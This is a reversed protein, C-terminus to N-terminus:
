GDGKYIVGFGRKRKRRRAWQLKRNRLGLSRYRELIEKRRWDVISNQPLIKKDRCRNVWVKYQLMNFWTDISLKLPPCQVSIRFKLSIRSGSRDTRIISKEIPNSEIQLKESIRRELYGSFGSLKDSIRNSGNFYNLKLFYFSFFFFFIFYM